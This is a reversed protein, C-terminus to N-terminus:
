LCLTTLIVMRTMTCRLCSLNRRRNMGIAKLIHFVVGRMCADRVGCLLGHHHGQPCGDVIVLPAGFTSVNLDVFKLRVGPDVKLLPM